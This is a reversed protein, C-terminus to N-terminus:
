DKSPKKPTIDCAQRVQDINLGAPAFEAIERGSRTPLAVNFVQAGIMGRTTGKDM